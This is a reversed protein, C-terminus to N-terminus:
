FLNRNQRKKRCYPLVTQWAKGIHRLFRFAASGKGHGASKSIDHAKMSKFFNQHKATKGNKRYYPLITQRVEGIHGWFPLTAFGKGHRPSKGIDYAKMSKLFHQRKATKVALRCFLKGRRASLGCFRSHPLVKTTGQRSAWIM